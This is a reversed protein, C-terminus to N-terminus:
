DTSWERYEETIVSQEADRGRRTHQRRAQELTRAVEADSELKLAEVQQSLTDNGDQLTSAERELEEFRRLLLKSHDELADKAAQRLLGWM